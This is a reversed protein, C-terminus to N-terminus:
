TQILRNLRNWIETNQLKMASVKELGWAVRRNPKIPAPALIPAMPPGAKAAKRTPSIPVSGRSSTALISTTAVRGRM